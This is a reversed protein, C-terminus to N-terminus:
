LNHSNHELLTKAQPVRLSLTSSSIFLIALLNSRKSCTGEIAHLYALRSSAISTMDLRHQLHFRMADELHNCFRTDIFIM